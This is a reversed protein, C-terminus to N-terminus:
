SALTFSKVIITYEVGNERGFRAKAEKIFGTFTGTSTVIRVMGNVDDPLSMDDTTFELEGATFLADINYIVIDTLENNGSSSTMKLTSAAAQGGIYAASNNMAGIFGKNNTVCLSPLYAQNGTLSYEFSSDVKVFFVDEDAKDDTTDSESKRATFEIGYADSRYKSVLSLKKDTLLFPTSYYNTFNTELRGDIEGYEKKSYGAEVQSYILDDNVSYKVDRFSTIDKPTSSPFVASRHVFSLTDGIVAYTYGFVAEMWGAFDAFTTYIKAGQIRRLEEAAIIFTEALLGATDAAITVTTGPFISQVVKEALEQPHIGRCNVPQRMADSWGMLLQCSDLIVGGYNANGSTRVIGLRLYTAILLSGSTFYVNLARNQEYYKPQGKDLWEGDQYEYVTNGTWYNDSSRDTYSGVVGFMGNYMVPQATRLQDLTAYVTNVGGVMTDVVATQNHGTQVTMHMLDAECLTKLFTQTNYGQENEILKYLNLQNVPLAANNAQSDDYAKPWFPLRLNGKMYGSCSVVKKTKAFFSNATGSGDRVEDYLDFYETSLIVSASNNKWLNVDGQPSQGQDFDFVANNTIRMRQVRVNVTDFDSVDFEYKQSKKSKLASALSNDLANVSLTGDGIEITSFDLAAEYQKEWGHTDTLTYVAVSATASFGMGIFRSLLRDRTVGCFVFETSFSRMVGSYDTRKLTFAIDDWNKLDEDPVDYDSLGMTLVFKTLMDCIYPFLACSERFPLIKVFAFLGSFM